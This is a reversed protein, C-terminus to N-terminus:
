RAVIVAALVVDLLRALDLVRVDHGVVAMHAVPTEVVQVKLGNLNALTARRAMTV